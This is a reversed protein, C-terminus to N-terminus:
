EQGRYKRPKQPTEGTFNGEKDFLYQYGSFFGLEKTPPLEKNTVLETVYAWKDLVKKAMDDTIYAHFARIDPKAEDMDKWRPKALGEYVILYDRIGTLLYYAVTQEVHYDAPGKMLYHGVQAVTNSKTKYEFGVFTDTDEHKLVGDLMGNLIFTQGKHTIERWRLVNHEWAPLGGNTRAVRFFRDTYKESYLLDRQVAGHVATSNRTWRRHYPYLETEEEYGMAKLWLDMVTKSAGSPNFRVLDRPYTPFSKLSELEAQKDRLLLEEIEIDNRIDQSHLQNFQSLLDQEYRPGLPNEEIVEEQLKKAGDKNIVSM